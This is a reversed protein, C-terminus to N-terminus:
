PNAIYAEFAEKASKGLEYQVADAVIKLKLERGSLPALDKQDLSEPIHVETFLVESDGPELARNLYYTYIYADDDNKADLKDFTWKTKDIDLLAIPGEDVHDARLTWWAEFDSFTITVRIWQEYYKGTNKIVPKKVIHQGPVIDEFNHGNGDIPDEDPKGDNDKDIYEDIDVSFIEDPSVDDESSAVYFKNEVEDKDNFWALTGFSITCILLLVLALSLIKKKNM